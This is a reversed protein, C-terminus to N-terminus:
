KLIIPPNVVEGNIVRPGDIAPRDTGHPRTSSTFRAGSFGPRRLWSVATNVLIDTAVRGLWAAGKGILSQNHKVTKLEKYKVELDMRKIITELDKNSLTHVGGLSARGRIVSSKIHDDSPLIVKKAGGTLRQRIVGWKQGKVGHHKITDEDFNSPDFKEFGYQEAQKQLILQVEDMSVNASPVIFGPTRM